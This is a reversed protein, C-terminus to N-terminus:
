ALGKCLLSTFSDLLPLGTSIEIFYWQGQVNVELFHFAGDKDVALDLVFFSLGLSQALSHVMNEVGPPLPFVEWGHPDQGRRWDVDRTRRRYGATYTQGAIYVVKVETHIDIREQFIYPCPSLLNLDSEEMQRIDIEATYIFGRNMDVAQMKPSGSFPVALPKVIVREIPMAWERLQRPDNTIITRPVRFGVDLACQIQWMKNDSMRTAALPNVWLCDRLLHYLGDIFARGGARVANRYAPEIEDPVTTPMLRRLWVSRVKSIDWDKGHARLRIIREPETFEVSSVLNKPYDEPHLRLPQLGRQRLQKVLLDAHTDFEGTVILVDAALM